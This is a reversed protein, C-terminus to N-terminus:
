FDILEFVDLVESALNILFGSVLLVELFMFVLVYFGFWIIFLVSLYFDCM